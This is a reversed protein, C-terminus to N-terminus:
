KCTNTFVCNPDQKAEPRRRPLPREVRKRRKVESGVVERHGDPSPTPSAGTVSAALPLGDPAEPVAESMDGLRNASPEEATAAPLLVYYGTAISGLVLVSSLALGAPMGFGHNLLISRYSATAPGPDSPPMKLTKEGGALSTDSNAWMPITAINETRVSIQESSLTEVMSYDPEISGETMHLSGPPSIRNEADSAVDNPRSRLSHSAKELQTRMERASRYRIQLDKDLSIEVVSRLEHPIEPPLSEAPGGQIAAVLGFMTESHFPLGGCLMEYLIVGASWIDAQPLKNGDFAEPSMYSPSGMANTSMSRSSVIRSVGFDAIRPFDGQLLINDPKLDRHVVKRSHLHEIGKLIGLMMEIAAHYSPAKGGNRGLWDKLSGGAAFESALVVVDNHILMDLVSMVNPHGGAEIWTDIEAEASKLNIEDGLNFLFKLAHQVRRKGIGLQKEALWVEGFQGRGLFRVLSYDGIKDGKELM